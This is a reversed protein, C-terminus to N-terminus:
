SGKLFGMVGGNMWTRATGMNRGPDEHLIVGVFEVFRIEPPIEHAFQCKKFVRAVERTYHGLGETQQNELHQKGQRHKESAEGVEESWGKEQNSTEVDREKEKGNQAEAKKEKVVVRGEAGDNKKEKEDGEDVGQALRRTVSDNQVVYVCLTPGDRLAAAKDIGRAVCEISTFTVCHKHLFLVLRDFLDGTFYSEPSTPLPFSRRPPSTTIVKYSLAPAMSYSPICPPPSYYRSLPPLYLVSLAPLRSQLQLLHPLPHNWRVKFFVDLILEASM